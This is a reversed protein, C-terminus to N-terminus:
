LGAWTKLLPQIEQMKVAIRGYNVEMTRLTEISKLRPPIDVDAHLPIQAADSFALKRETEKSLLYDMLKTGNAPNPGGKILIAANPTVMCGIESVSQDPYVIDVPKGQQIRSFIDDTDVLSFGFEGAAVLDASQGNSSSVKVGNKKLEELFRKAPEDGWITFLAAIYATTTGFLPNAIVGKGKLKPAVYDRVVGPREKGMNKNVIFARIRASFGTWHGESDKFTDPIGSANPSRYPRSIGQQKLVEAGIPDNAWYVDAQPNNKEALLRNMVGTSKAEETDFVSKVSLGTDREFDKLIPESFVQDESVYVVVTKSAPKTSRCGSLVWLSTFVAVCVSSHIMSKANIASMRYLLKEFKTPKM